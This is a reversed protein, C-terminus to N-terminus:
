FQDNLWGNRPFPSGSVTERFHALDDTDGAGVTSVHGDFFGYNRTSGHVPADPLQQFTADQIGAPGGPFMRDLDAVAGTGAPDKLSGLNPGTHSWLESGDVYRRLRYMRRNANPDEAELARLVYQPNKLFSPCEMVLSRAGGPGVLTRDHALFPKLHYALAARILGHDEVYRNAVDPSLTGDAPTTGDALTLFPMRDQHDAAFLGIALTVQKLNSVCHIKHAKAKARALAPLLMAALIAIIAIVVLLEVLTFAGFRRRRARGEIRCQNSEGVANM